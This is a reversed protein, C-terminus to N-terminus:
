LPSTPKRRVVLPGGLVLVNGRQREGLRITVLTPSQGTTLAAWPSTLEPTEVIVGEVTPNLRMVLADSLPVQTLGDFWQVGAAHVLHLYREEGDALHVSGSTAGLGEVTKELIKGVSEKLSRRLVTAEMVANLTEMTQRERRVSWKSFSWATGLIIAIAMLGIM